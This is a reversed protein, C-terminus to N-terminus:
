EGVKLAKIIYEDRIIQLMSAKKLMIDSCPADTVLMIRLVTDYDIMRIIILNADM